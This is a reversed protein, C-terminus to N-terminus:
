CTDVISAVVPRTTYDLHNSLGRAYAVEGMDEKIERDVLNLTLQGYDFM